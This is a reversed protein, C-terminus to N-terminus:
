DGNNAEGTAIVEGGKLEKGTSKIARSIAEFAVNDDTVVTVSQQEVSTDVQKVGPIGNLTKKISSACGGCSMSVNYSYTNTM